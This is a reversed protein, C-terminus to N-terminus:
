PDIPSSLMSMTSFHQIIQPYRNCQTRFQQPYFLHIEVFIFSSSLNSITPSFPSFIVIIQFNSDVQSQLFPLSHSHSHSQSPIFPNPNIHSSSNYIFISHFLPIISTKHSELPFSSLCKIFRHLTMIIYRVHHITHFPHLKDHCIM